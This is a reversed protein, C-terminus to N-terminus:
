ITSVDGIIIKQQCLIPSLSSCVHRVSSVVYLMLYFAIGCVSYKTFLYWQCIFYCRWYPKGHSYTAHREVTDTINSGQFSQSDDNIDVHTKKRIRSWMPVSVFYVCNQLCTVGDLENGQIFIITNSNLHWLLFIDAETGIIAWFMSTYICLEAEILWSHQVIIEKGSFLHDRSKGAWTGTVVVSIPSVKGPVPASM